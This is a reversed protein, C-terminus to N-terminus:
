SHSYLLIVIFKIVIRIDIMTLLQVFFSAQHQQIHSCLIVIMQFWMVLHIKNSQNIMPSRATMRHNRQLQFLCNKDYLCDSIVYGFSCFRLHLPKQQAKAWFSFKLLYLLGGILYQKARTHADTLFCLLVPTPMIPSSKRVYFLMTPYWKWCNRQM